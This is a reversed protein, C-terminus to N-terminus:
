KINNFKYNSTNRFKRLFLEKDTTKVEVFLM